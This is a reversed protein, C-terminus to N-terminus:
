YQLYCIDLKVLEFLAKVVVVVVVIIIIIIIQTLFIEEIFSNKDM